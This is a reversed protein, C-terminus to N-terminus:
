LNYKEVDNELKIREEALSIAKEYDKMGIKIAKDVVISLCDSCCCSYLTSLRQGEGIFVSFNQLKDKCNNCKSTDSM